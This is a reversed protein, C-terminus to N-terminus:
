RGLVTQKKAPLQQHVAKTEETTSRSRIRNLSSLLSYIKKKKKLTAHVVPNHWVDTFSWKQEPTHSVHHLSPVHWMKSQSNNGAPIEQLSLQFHRVVKIQIWSPAMCINSALQWPQQEHLTLHTVPCGSTVAPLMILENCSRGFVFQCYEM